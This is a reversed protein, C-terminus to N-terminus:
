IQEAVPIKQENIGFYGKCQACIELYGKVSYGLNYELIIKKNTEEETFNLEEKDTNYKSRVLNAYHGQMCYYEIGKAFERCPMDCQEFMQQGRCEIFNQQENWGMDLWLDVRQEYYEVGSEECVAVFKDRKEKWGEVGEYSSIRIQLGNKAIVEMVKKEPLVTANTILLFTGIKQSYNEVIYTLFQALEPYLFIEGGGPGYYKIFDVKSFLLDADQKLQKLPMHNKDKLYPISMICERCKLSCHTTVMQSLQEIYVKNFKYVALIGLYMALFIDYFFFDINEKYGEGLLRKALYIYHYRKVAFVVIFDRKSEKKEIEFQEPSIVSYHCVGTLQKKKDRDIFCIETGLFAISKEVDKGIEGAGYIYVKQFSKLEEAVADYQHGKNTWKM